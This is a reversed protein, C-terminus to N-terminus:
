VTWCRPVVSGVRDSRIAASVCARLTADPDDKDATFTTAGWTIRSGVAGRRAVASWITRSASRTRAIVRSTSAASGTWRLHDRVADFKPNTVAPVIARRIQVFM